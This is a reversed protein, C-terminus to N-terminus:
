KMTTQEFTHTETNYIADFQNMCIEINLKNCFEDFLISATSQLCPDFNIDGGLILYDYDIDPLILILEDLIEIILTIGAQTRHDPM